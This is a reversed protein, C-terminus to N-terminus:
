NLERATSLVSDDYIDTLIEFEIRVWLATVAQYIKYPLTFQSSITPPRCNAHMFECRSTCSDNTTPNEDTTLGAITRSTRASIRAYIVLRTSPYYKNSYNRGAKDNSQRNM